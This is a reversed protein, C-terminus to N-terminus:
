FPFDNIWVREAVTKCLIEKVAEIINCQKGIQHPVFADLGRAYIQTARCGFLPCDYILNYVPLDFGQLSFM